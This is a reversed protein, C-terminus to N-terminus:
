KKLKGLVNLFWTPTSHIFLELMNETQSAFDQLQGTTKRFERAEASDGEADRVQSLIKQIPELERKKREKAIQKALAWVDKNAVFFERREGQVLQKEVIGWDVLTRINMNANGRSIQLQHMIDETSLPKISILLLAHIQAMTRNVGWSSGLSGWASIFKQKAEAYEM